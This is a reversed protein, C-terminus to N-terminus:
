KIRIGHDQVLEFRTFKKGKRYLYGYTDENFWVQLGSFGGRNYASQIPQGVFEGIKKALKESVRQKM